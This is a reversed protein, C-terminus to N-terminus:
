TDISPVEATTLLIGDAALLHVSGDPAVRLATTPTPSPQDPLTPMGEATTPLQMITTTGQGDAIIGFAAAADRTFQEYTVAITSGVFADGLQTGHLQWPTHSEITASATNDLWAIEIVRGAGTQQQTIRSGPGASVAAATDIKLSPLEEITTTETTMITGDDALLVTSAKGWAPERGDAPPHDTPVVATVQGGHVWLRAYRVAPFTGKLLASVNDVTPEVGGPSYRLLQAGPGNGDNSTECLAWLEGAQDFALSWCRTIQTPVTLPTADAADPHTITLDDGTASVAVRGDSAVAALRVEPGVGPLVRADLDVPGADAPLVPATGDTASVPQGPPPDVEVQGAVGGTPTGPWASSLGLAAVAVGAVVMAATVTTRRRRRWTGADVLADVDPAPPVPGAARELVDTLQDSM